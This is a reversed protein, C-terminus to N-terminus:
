FRWSTQEFGKFNIEFKKGFKKAFKESVKGLNKIFIHTHQKARKFNAPM